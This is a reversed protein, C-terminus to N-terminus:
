RVQPADRGSRAPAPAPKAPPPVVEVAGAAEEVAPGGVVAATPELYCDCGSIHMALEEVPGDKEQHTITIVGADSLTIKFGDQKRIYHHMRGFLERKGTVFRVLKVERM